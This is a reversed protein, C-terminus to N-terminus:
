EKISKESDVQMIEIVKYDGKITKDKIKGNYEKLAKDITFPGKLCNQGPAGVRGWRCWFM